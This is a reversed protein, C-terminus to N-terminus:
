PSMLDQQLQDLEDELDEVDDWADAALVIATVALGITLTLLFTGDGVNFLRAVGNHSNWVADQGRVVAENSVILASRRAAPPATGHAWVRFVTVGNAALAQYVGARLGRVSFVGQADTVASAVEQQNQRFSVLVGELSAGHQDVVRGTVGADASLEIDTVGVVAASAAATPAATPPTEALVASRPVLTGLLALGVAGHKFVRSLNIRVSKM